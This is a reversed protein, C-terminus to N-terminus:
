CEIIKPIFKDNKQLWQNFIARREWHIDMIPFRRINGIKGRM